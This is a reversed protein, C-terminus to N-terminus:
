DTASIPIATFLTAPGTNTFLASFTLFGQHCPDEADHIGFPAHTLVIDIKRGLLFRWALKRWIARMQRETYQVASHHGHYM